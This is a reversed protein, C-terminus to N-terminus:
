PQKWRLDRERGDSTAKEPWGNSRQIRGVGSGLASKGELPTGTWQIVLMGGSRAAAPAMLREIVLMRGSSGIVFHAIPTQLFDTRTEKQMSGMVSVERRRPRYHGHASHLWEYAERRSIHRHGRCNPRIKNYIFASEEEQSLLCVKSVPM